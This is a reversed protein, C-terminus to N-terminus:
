TRRASVATVAQWPGAFWFNPGLRRLTVDTMELSRLQAAYERANRIDAIVLHGGPRLVRVAESVATARAAPDPINHIALSSTVVDFTADDFPLATLDATHLVVRDAVGEARANADTVEEHNGSQDVSRWLDVGHAHGEPLRKAAALLVAGRGCGLDVLEENGRLELDDLLREWVLFKGRLTTHLFLGTQALFFSGLVIFWWAGVVLGVVLAVVGVLGLIMPVYPADIGYRFRGTSPTTAAETM